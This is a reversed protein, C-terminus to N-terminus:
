VGDVADACVCIHQLKPADRCRRSAFSPLDSLGTPYSAKPGSCLVVFQVCASDLKCVGACFETSTVGCVLFKVTHVYPGQLECGGAASGRM